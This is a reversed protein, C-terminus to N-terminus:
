KKGRGGKGGKKGGGRKNKAIIAKQAKTPKANAPLVYENPHVIIARRRKGVSGGNRFPALSGLSQGIEAGDLGKVPLFASGLAGLGRGILGGLFGM